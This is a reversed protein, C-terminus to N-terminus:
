ACTWWGGALMAGCGHALADRWDATASKFLLPAAVKAAYRFRKM